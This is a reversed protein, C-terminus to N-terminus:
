IGGQAKILSLFIESSKRLKMGPPAIASIHYPTLELGLDIESLIGEKRFSTYDPVYGIGMGEAAMNAVIEWSTVEMVALEKKFKKQYRKQLFEKEDQRFKGIVLNLKKRENVTLESSVYFRFNGQYVDRKDFEGLSGDDPLIGFDVVGQKVMQKVHRNRDLQFTMPVDPHQEKFEKLYFPIVSIGFSYTCAFELPGLQAYSAKNFFNQFDVSSQLMDLGKHFVAEGEPTLRFRNPHHAVLEVGLSKKSNTSEKALPRSHSM